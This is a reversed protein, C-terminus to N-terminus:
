FPLNYLANFLYLNTTQRYAININNENIGFGTVM